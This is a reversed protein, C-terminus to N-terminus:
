HTAATDASTWKGLISYVSRVYHGPEDVGPCGSRNMHGDKVMEHFTNPSALVYLTADRHLYATACTFDNNPM